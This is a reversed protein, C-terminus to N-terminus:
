VVSKSAGVNDLSYGYGERQCVDNKSGDFEGQGQPIGAVRRVLLKRRVDDDAEKTAVQVQDVELLRRRRRRRSRRSKRSRNRRSRRSRRKRATRARTPAHTPASTPAQTLSSPGIPMTSAWDGLNSCNAATKWDLNVNRMKCVEARWCDSQDDIGLTSCGSTINEFCACGWMEPPLPNGVLRHTKGTKLASFSGGIALAELVVKFESKSALDGLCSRWSDCADIMYQFTGEEVWSENQLCGKQFESSYRLLMKYTDLSELGLMGDNWEPMDLLCSSARYCDESTAVSLFGLYLSLHFM